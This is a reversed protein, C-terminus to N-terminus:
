RLRPRSSISPKLRGDALEQQIGNALEQCREQGLYGTQKIEGDVFLANGFRYTTNYDLWEKLETPDRWEVVRDNNAYVRICSHM